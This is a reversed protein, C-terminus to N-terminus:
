WDTNLIFGYYHWIQYIEVKNLKCKKERFIEGSRYHEKKHDLKFAGPGCFFYVSVILNKWWNHVGHRCDTVFAANLTSCRVGGEQRIPLGRSRVYQFSM